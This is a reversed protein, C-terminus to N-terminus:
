QINVRSKRGGKEMSLLAQQLRLKEEDPGPRLLMVRQVAPLGSSLCAALCRSLIQSLVYVVVIILVVTILGHLLWAGIGSFNFMKGLWGFLGNAEDHPVYAIKQLHDARDFVKDSYDPIYVCCEQGILACTGGKAALIVDLAQRNQLAVTRIARTEESLLRLSEATDNALIEVVAQLRLIRKNAHIAGGIPVFANGIANDWTLPDVNDVYWQADKVDRKFNRFSKTPLRSLVRFQPLLKAPYCVGSWNAPLVTYAKGGCVWHHGLLAPFPTRCSNNLYSEVFHSYYGTFPMPFMDTSNNATLCKFITQNETTEFESCNLLGSTTQNWTTYVEGTYRTKWTVTKGSHDWVGDKVINRRCRSTGLFPGSGNCVWCWEGVASVVSIRTENQVGVSDWTDNSGYPQNFPRPGATLESANLALPLVPIGADATSPIHSCIWCNSINLTEAVFEQQMIYTNQRYAAHRGAISLWLLAFARFAVSPM